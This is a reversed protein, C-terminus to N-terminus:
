VQMQELERFTSVASTVVQNALQMTTTLENMAFVADELSAKGQTYKSVMDNASQELASVQNLSDVAQDLFKQFPILDPKVLNTVPSGSDADAMASSILRQIGTVM